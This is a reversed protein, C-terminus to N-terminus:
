PLILFFHLCFCCCGLCLIKNERMRRWALITTATATKPVFTSAPVCLLCCCFSNIWRIAVAGRVSWWYIYEAYMERVYRSTSLCICFLPTHPPALTYGSTRYVRNVFMVCNIYIHVHIKLIRKWKWKDMERESEIERGSSALRVCLKYMTKRKKKEEGEAAHSHNPQVNGSISQVKRRNHAYQKKRKKKMGNWNM